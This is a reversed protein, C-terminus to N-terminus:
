RVRSPKPMTMPAMITSAMMKEYKSMDHDVNQEYGRDYLSTGESRESNLM